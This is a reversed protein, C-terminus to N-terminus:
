FGRFDALPLLDYGDLRPHLIDDAIPRNIEPEDFTLRLSNGEATAIEITGPFAIGADSRYDGYTVVDGNATVKRQVVGRSDYLIRDSRGDDGAFTREQAPGSPPLPELAWRLLPWVRKGLMEPLDDLDGQWGQHKSERFCLVRNGDVAIDFLSQGFPALISLRLSAPRRYFLVGNGGLRGAATSLSINVSGQVTEIGAAPGSAPERSVPAAACAALLLCGLLAPLRTLM